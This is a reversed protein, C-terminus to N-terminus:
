FRFKGQKILYGCAAGVLLGGLHGQWAVSPLFSLIIFSGIVAIWLPIPVPLPFVMVKSNPRLVALTGGLAFVAGSAGIVYGFSGANLLIFLLSGALGGGFFIILWSRQSIMQLLANGFFYLTIMNAFLHWLDAHVFLSTIITWPHSIATAPQLALYPGIQPAFNVGFFVIVCTIIVLLIIDPQNRYSTYRM